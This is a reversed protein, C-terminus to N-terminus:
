VVFLRFIGYMFVAGLAFIFANLPMLLWPLSVGSLAYVAAAIGSPANGKPRLEWTQWGQIKIQEALEIADLHFRVWDGGKLLGNGAHLNPMLPLVVWQLLLGSFLSWAFVFLFVRLPSDSIAALRCHWASLMEIRPPSIGRGERMM